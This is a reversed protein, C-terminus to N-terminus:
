QDSTSCLLGISRWCVIMGALLLAVGGIPIASKIIWRSSLGTPYMATEGSQWALWAAKAGFWILVTSLPVLIAVFGFIEIRARARPSLRNIVIDIRVHGNRLYTWGLGLMVTAFYFHWQLDVLKESGTVFFQKGVIDYISVLMLAPLCVYAGLQGALRVAHQAWVILRPQLVGESASHRTSKQDL